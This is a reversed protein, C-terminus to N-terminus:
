VRVGWTRFVQFGSGQVSSDWIRFRLVRSQLVGRFKGTNLGSHVRMIISDEYIRM